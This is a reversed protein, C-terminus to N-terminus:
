WDRNCKVIEMKVHVTVIKKRVRCSIEIELLLDIHIDISKEVTTHSVPQAVSLKIFIITCEATV